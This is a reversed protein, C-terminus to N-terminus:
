SSGFTLEVGLLAMDNTYDDDSDGPDRKLEFLILDGKSIKANTLIATIDSTRANNTTGSISQVIDFSDTVTPASVSDAGSIYSVNVYWQVGKAIAGPATTVALNFIMKFVTGVGFDFNPIYLAGYVSNTGGTGKFLWVEANGILGKTAGGAAPAFISSPTLFLLRSDTLGEIAAEIDKVTVDFLDFTDQLKISEAPVQVDITGGLDNVKDPRYAFARPRFIAGSAIQVDFNTNSLSFGGDCECTGDISVGINACGNISPQWLSANSGDIIEVGNNCLIVSVGDLYNVGAGSFRDGILIGAQNVAASPGPLITLDQAKRVEYNATNSVTNATTSFGLAANITGTSFVTVVDDVVGRLELYGWRDFAEVNVATAMIWAALQAATPVMSGASWTFTEPPNAGARFTLTDGNNVTGYTSQHGTFISASNRIWLGVDVPNTALAPIIICNSVGGLGVSVIAGNAVGDGFILCETPSVGKLSVFDPLWMRETYYGPYLEILFRSGDSPQQAPPLDNIYAVAATITAFSQVNQFGGGSGVQIKRSFKVEGGGTGLFGSM